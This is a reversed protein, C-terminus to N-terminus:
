IEFPQVPTSMRTTTDPTAVTAHGLVEVYDSDCPALLLLRLDINVM